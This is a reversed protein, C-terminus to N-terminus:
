RDAHPGLLVRQGRYLVLWPFVVWTANTLGFKIWSDLFSSTAVNAHRIADHFVLWVLEWSLHTVTSVAM